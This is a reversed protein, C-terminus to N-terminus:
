MSKPKNTPVESPPETSFLKDELAKPVQILGYITPVQLPQGAIRSQKLKEKSYPLTQGGADVVVRGNGIDTIEINVSKLGERTTGVFKYLIHATGMRNLVQSEYGNGKEYTPNETDLSTGASMGAKSYAGLKNEMLFKKFDFNDM